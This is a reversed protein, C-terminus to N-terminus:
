RCLLQELDVPRPLVLDAPAGPDVRHGWGASVAKAGARRAAELDMPSDGVYAAAVPSVHLRACALLVGAPDPKPREVEDGGVVASFRDMLGAADLLTRCSALDAGSFVATAVHPRLRDIAETIGRYLRLTTRQDHLRRHYAALVDDGCVEGILHSLIARPPGFRYADVVDGRTPGPRGAERVTEAFAHFVAENSDFM